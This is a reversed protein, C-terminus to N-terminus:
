RHDPDHSIDRARGIAEIMAAAKSLTERYEASAISDAVIGAGAQVYAVGEKLVISRLAICCDLAGDFGFYGVVGAYCGRKTKELDTIIQMARIKPAGSVTGAPLTARLADFATLDSRLRAIVHSWLHMVHSYREVTMQETVRVSGIEAVRGVDNRALDILMVHEAREKEDALLEAVNAADEEPTRGRRRTGAIPRVEVAGDGVRVHMEPSSGILSFEDGFRLCFLYPSPNVLRLARYLSLPDGSYDAAFRQSLVVQFIDGARILEQAIEVNREFVDQPTNSRTEPPTIARQADIPPLRAPATLKQLATDIASAATDYIADLDSDDSVFANAVIKVRRFRHDFIVLTQMISFIMEPLRLDDHPPMTVKSEFFRVMDYGIFGVAGGGFRPLGPNAAFQFGSMVRELERLPDGAVERTETGALDTITLKDGELRM